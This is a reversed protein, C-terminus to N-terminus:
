FEVSQLNLSCNLIMVAAIILNKLMVILLWFKVKASHGTVKWVIRHRDHRDLLAAGVEVVLLDDM